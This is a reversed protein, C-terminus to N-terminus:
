PRVKGAGAVDAIALEDALAGAGADRQPLQELARDLRRADGDRQVCRGALQDHLVSGDAARDDVALRDDGGAPHDQGAAPDLVVLLQAVGVQRQRQHGDPLVPLVPSLRRRAVWAPAERHCM